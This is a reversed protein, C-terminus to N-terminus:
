MILSKEAYQVACPDYPGFLKSHNILVSFLLNILHNVFSVCVTNGLSIHVPTKLGNIHRGV